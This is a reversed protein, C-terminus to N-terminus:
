KVGAKVTKKTPTTTKKVVKTEKTPKSDNSGMVELMTLHQRHGYRRTYRSKSKFKMGNIKVGLYNKLVKLSVDKNALLDKAIVTDGEESDGQNVVIRTGVEALHQKGGLEIIMKNNNTDKNM